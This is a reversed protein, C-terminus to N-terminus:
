EEIDGGFKGDFFILMGIIISMVLMMIIAAASLKQYDLTRFTNNMYHQLLYLGDYPYDGTMLYVERFLKFSNILSLITVFIVTPSLYRLKIMFFKYLASAGELDAVELLDRPMGALASMFLIMNYGLNKWLFLLAIILLCYKSKLWDVPEAGFWQALWSNFTGNYHFVVQWVLVVSAAPVMVPSLFISRLASKGPIKSEMLMALLMSLVVAPPVTILALVVTNKAATLFATNTVISKFNDLWVFEKSIPNDLVSYYIVAFFPVIFFTLVGLISPAMCLKAFLTNNKYKHKKQKPKKIKMQKTIEKTEM